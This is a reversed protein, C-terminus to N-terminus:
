EKDSDKLKEKIYFYHELFNDLSMSYQKYIKTYYLELLKFTIEESM